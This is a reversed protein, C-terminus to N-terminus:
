RGANADEIQQPGTQTLHAAGPSIARRYRRLYSM